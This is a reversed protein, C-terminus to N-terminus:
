KFGNSQFGVNESGRATFKLGSVYRTKEEAEAQAKEIQLASLEAEIRRKQRMLQATEALEKKKLAGLAELKHEEAKLAAIRARREEVLGRNEARFQEYSEQKLQRLQLAEQLEVEAVSPSVIAPAAETMDVKPKLTRNVSPVNVVKPSAIPPISSPVKMEKVVTSHLKNTVERINESNKIIAESVSVKSLNDKINGEQYIDNKINLNISKDSPYNGAQGEQNRNNVNNLDGGIKPKLSRDVKPQSVVDGESSALEEKLLDLKSKTVEEEEKEPSSLFALDLDYAITDM